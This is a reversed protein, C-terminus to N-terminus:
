FIYYRTKYRRRTGHITINTWNAEFVNLAPTLQLLQVLKDVDDDGAELFETDEDKVHVKFKVGVSKLCLVRM